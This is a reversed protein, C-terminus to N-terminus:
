AATEMLKTLADKDVRRPLRHRKDVRPSQMWRLLNVRWINENVFFEGIVRMRSMVGQQTARAHFKCRRGIYETIMGATVDELKPRPRRNKLYCGWKDWESSMMHITSSALKRSEYVDMFRVKLGDWRKM